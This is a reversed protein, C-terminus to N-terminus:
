ACCTGHYTTSPSAIATEVRRQGVGSYAHAFVEAANGILHLEGVRAFQFIGVPLFHALSAEATLCEEWDGTSLLVRLTQTVSSQVPIIYGLVVHGTAVRRIGVFYAVGIVVDHLLGRPPCLLFEEHRTVLKGKTLQDNGGLVIIDSAARDQPTSVWAQQLQKLVLLLGL